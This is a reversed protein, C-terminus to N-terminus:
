CADATIAILRGVPLRAFVDIFLWFGTIIMSSSILTIFRLLRFYDFHRFPPPQRFGDTAFAPAAHFRFARFPSFLLAPAITFTILWRFLGALPQFILIIIFIFRLFIPMAHFLFYRFPPPLSHRFYHRRISFLQFALPPSLTIAADAAHCRLSFSFICRRFALLPTIISVTMLFHFYYRRLRFAAAFRFPPTIFAPTAHFRSIAHRRCRAYADDFASLSFHRRPPSIDTAAPMAADAYRAPSIDIAADSLLIM